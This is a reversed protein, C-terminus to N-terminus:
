AHQAKDAAEMLAVIAAAPDNGCAVLAAAAVQSEEAHRTQLLQGTQTRAVAEGRTASAVLDPPCLSNLLRSGVSLMAEERKGPPAHLQNFDEKCVNLCGVLRKIQMNETQCCGIRAMVTKLHTELAQKRALLKAHTEELSQLHKLDDRTADEGPTATACGARPKSPDSSDDGGKEPSCEM